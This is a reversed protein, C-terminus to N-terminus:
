TSNYNQKISFVITSSINFHGESELCPKQWRHNGSVHLIHNHSSYVITFNSYTYILLLILLKTNARQGKSLPWHCDSLNRECEIIQVVGYRGKISHFLKEFGQVWVGPSLVQVADVSLCVDMIYGSGIMQCASM